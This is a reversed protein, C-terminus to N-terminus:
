PNLPPPVFLLLLHTGRPNRLMTEGEGILSNIFPSTFNSERELGEWKSFIVSGVAAEAKTVGASTIPLHSNGFVAFDSQTVRRPLSQLEKVM